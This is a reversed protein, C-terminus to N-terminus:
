CNTYYDVTEQEVTLRLRSNEETLRNSVADIRNYGTSSPVTSSFSKFTISSLFQTCEGINLDSYYVPSLLVFYSYTTILYLSSSVSIVFQIVTVFVELFSSNKIM